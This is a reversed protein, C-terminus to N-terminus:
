AAEDDATSFPLALTFPDEIDHEYAGHEETSVPIAQRRHSPAQPSPFNFVISYAPKSNEPEVVNTLRAIVEIARHLQASLNALAAHAKESYADEAAGELRALSRQMRDVLVASKVVDDPTPVVEGAAIARARKVEAQGDRVPSVIRAAAQLKPALCNNRHRLVSSKSLGHRRAVERGSVGQTLETEIAVKEAHTCITCAQM